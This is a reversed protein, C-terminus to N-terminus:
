SKLSPSLLVATVTNKVKSRLEELCKMDGSVIVNIDLLIEEIVGLNHPYIVLPIGGQKYIELLFQKQLKSLKGGAAKTEIAIFQGKYLCCFDSVGAKGFVTGRPMWYCVGFKRLVDRVCDKVKGEPTM